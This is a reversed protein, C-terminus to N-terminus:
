GLCVSLVTKLEMRTLVVLRCFGEFHCLLNNTFYAQRCAKEKVCFAEMLSSIIQKHVTRYCAFILHRFIQRNLPFAGICFLQGEKKFMGTKFLDAVNEANGSIIAFHLTQLKQELTIEYGREELPAHHIVM